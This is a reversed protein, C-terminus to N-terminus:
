TQSQWRNIHNVREQHTAEPMTEEVHLIFSIVPKVAKDISIQYKKRVLKNHILDHVDPMHMGPPMSDVM